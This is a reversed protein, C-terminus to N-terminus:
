IPKNGAVTILLQEIIEKEEQLASKKYNAQLKEKIVSSFTSSCLYEYVISRVHFDDDNLFKITTEDDQNGSLEYLSWVASHRLGPNECFIYKKVVPIAPLYGAEGAIEIIFQIVGLNRENEILGVIISLVERSFDSCIAQMYTIFLTNNRYVGINKITDIVYAYSYKECLILCKEAEERVDKESDILLDIVLSYDIDALKESIIKMTKIKVFPIDSLLAKRVVHDILMSDKYNVNELINFIDSSNDGHFIIDIIDINSYSLNNVAAWNEQIIATMMKDRQYFPFWGLAKLSGCAYKRILRNNDYLLNILTEVSKESNYYGLAEIAEIRSFSSNDLAHNILIDLSSNSHIKGMAQAIIPLDNKSYIDKLFMSTKEGGIEGLAKIISPRIKGDPDTASSILKDLIMEGMSIMAKILALYEAFRLDSRTFFIDMLANASEKSRIKSISQAARIFSEGNNATMMSKYFFIRISDFM